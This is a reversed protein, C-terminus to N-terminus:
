KQWDKRRYLHMFGRQPSVYILEYGERLQRFISKTDENNWDPEHMCWVLVYDVRGGTRQPYTLFDARPPQSELEAGVGIHQFPNLGPRFATPFYDKTAEYNLLDVAQRQAAIYGAAHLFPSVKYALVPQSPPHVYHALSLPLLTTNREILHAGSLYEELYDNFQVYKVVHTSVFAVSVAM